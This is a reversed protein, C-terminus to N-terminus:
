EYEDEYILPHKGEPTEFIHKAVKMTASFVRQWYGVVDPKIARIRGTESGDKKSISYLSMLHICTM